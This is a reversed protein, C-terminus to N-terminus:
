KELLTINYKDLIIEPYYSLKAKRLGEDGTDDERNVYQFNECNHIVFQQNMMPYAGQIDSFAKEIHVVFTDSSLPEGISYAVVEKKRILMGGVLNLELYHDLAEQVACMEKKLSKHMACENQKCWKENMEYCLSLNEKTISEYHWDPEDKFRAIHNRKGHLKKGALTALKEASYIYDSEARDSYFAFTEPFMKELESKNSELVGRMVFPSNSEKANQILKEIAGRHDGNGIPYSVCEKGQAGSKIVLCNDILAVKAYYSKRWIFNNVFSYECGRLDAEQFKKTMWDQDELSIPKFEIM